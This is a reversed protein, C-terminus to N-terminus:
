GNMHLKVV